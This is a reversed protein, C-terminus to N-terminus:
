KRGTIKSLMKKIRSYTTKTRPMIEGAIVLSKYRDELEKTWQPHNERCYPNNATHALRYIPCDEQLNEDHLAIFEIVELAMREMSPLKKFTTKTKDSM